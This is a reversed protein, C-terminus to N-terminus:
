WREGGEDLVVVTRDRGYPPPTHRPTHVVIHREDSTRPPVPSCSPRWPSRRAGARAEGGSGRHPRRRSAERCSPRPTARTGPGRARTLRAPLLQDVQEERIRLVRRAREAPVQRLKPPQESSRVGDPAPVHDLEPEGRSRHDVDQHQHAARRSLRDFERAEAPLQELAHVDVRAGPEGCPQEALAPMQLAQALRDQALPREARQRGPVSAGRHLEGRPQDRGVRQVLVGM